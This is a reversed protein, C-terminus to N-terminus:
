TVAGVTVPVATCALITRVAIREGGRWGGGRLLLLQM